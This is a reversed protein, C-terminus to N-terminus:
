YDLLSKVFFVVTIYPNYANVNISIIKNLHKAQFFLIM